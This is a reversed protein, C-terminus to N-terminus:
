PDGARVVDVMVDVLITLNKCVPALPQLASAGRVALRGVAASGRAVEWVYWARKQALIIDGKRGGEARKTASGDRLRRRSGRLLSSLRHALVRGRMINRTRTLFVLVGEQM